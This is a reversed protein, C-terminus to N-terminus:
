RSSAGGTGTSSGLGRAERIKRIVNWAVWGRQLWGSARNPRVAVAFAAAGILLAPHSRVYQVAALGQDAIALPTRWLQMNQALTARQTEAQAVLRARREALETLRHNM